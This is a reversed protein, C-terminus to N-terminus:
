SRAAPAAVPRIPMPVTKANGSTVATPAAAPVARRRAEDVQYGMWECFAVGGTEPRAEGPQILTVSQRAHPHGNHDVIMLTLKGDPLLCAVHADCPQDTPGPLGESLAPWYHLVRGITPIIPNTM